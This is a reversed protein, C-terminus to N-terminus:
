IVEIQEIKSNKREIRIYMSDWSDGLNIEAEGNLLTSEVTKWNKNDKSISLVYDTGIAILKIKIKDKNEFLQIKKTNIIGSEVNYITKIENDVYKQINYQKVQEKKKYKKYVNDGVSVLDDDPYVGSKAITEGELETVTNQEKEVAVKDRYRCNGYNDYKMFQRLNRGIVQSGHGSMPARTNHFWTEGNNMMASSRNTADIVTFNGDSSNFSYYAWGWAGGTISCGAGLSGANVPGQWNGWPGEEWVM